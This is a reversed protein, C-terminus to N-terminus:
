LWAYHATTRYVIYQVFFPKGNGEELKQNKFKSFFAATLVATLEPRARQLNLELTGLCRAATAQVACLRPVIAGQACGGGLFQWGKTGFSPLDCLLKVPTFTQWYWHACQEKRAGLMYMMMELSTESDFRVKTRGSVGGVRRFRQLCRDLTQKKAECIQNKFKGRM